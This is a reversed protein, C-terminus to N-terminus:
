KDWQLLYKLFYFIRNVVAIAVRVGISSAGQIVNLQEIYTTIRAQYKQLIYGIM